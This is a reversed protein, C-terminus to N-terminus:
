GLIVFWQFINIGLLCQISTSVTFNFYEFLTILYRLSSTGRSMDHTRMLLVTTVTSNELNNRLVWEHFAISLIITSRGHVGYEHKLPLEVPWVRPYMISLLATLRRSAELVSDWDQQRLAAGTGVTFLM